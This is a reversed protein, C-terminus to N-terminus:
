EPRRKSQGDWGPEDSWSPDNDWEDNREQAKELARQADAETDYPGLRDIPPCVDGPTQEVRHHKVCFWFAMNTLRRGAFPWEYVRGMDVVAIAGAAIEGRRGTGSDIALGSYTSRGVGAGYVPLSTLSASVM